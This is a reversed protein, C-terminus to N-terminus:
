VEDSGTREGRAERALQRCVVCYAQFTHTFQDFTGTLLAHAARTFPEVAMTLAVASAYRVPDFFRHYYRLRSRINYAMRLAPVNRSSGGGIHTAVADACFYVKWGQETARRCLDVEEYYMFYRADFGGLEEYVERKMVLFAGIVQDVSRSRCHDFELMPQSKGLRAALTEIGFTKAFVTSLSPFRSCTISVNGSEDILRPGIIAVDPMGAWVRFLAEFCSAPVVTDPNLFAIHTGSGAQAGTNCARGFGLNAGNTILEVTPHDVISTTSGDTSANDVVVVTGLRVESTASALVSRICRELQPGSNWNVIVVDCIPTATM